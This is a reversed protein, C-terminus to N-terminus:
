CVSTESVCTQLYLSAEACHLWECVSVLVFSNNVSQPSSCTPGDPGSHPESDLGAACTPVLSGDLLM